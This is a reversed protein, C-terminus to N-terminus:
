LPGIEMLRTGKVHVSSQPLRHSSTAHTSSPRRSRMSVGSRGSVTWNGRRMGQRRPRAWRRTCSAASRTRWGNRRLPGRPEPAKQGTEHSSARSSTASRSARVRASSPGSDMRWAVPAPDMEPRPSLPAWAERRNKEWQAGTVSIAPFMLTWQTAMAWCHISPLWRGPLSRAVRSSLRRIRSHPIFGASVCMPGFVACKM